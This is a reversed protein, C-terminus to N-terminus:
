KKLNENKRKKFNRKPMKGFTKAMPRYHNTVAIYHVKNRFLSKTKEFNIKLYFVFHGNSISQIM